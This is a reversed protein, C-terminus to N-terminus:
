GSEALESLAWACARRPQCNMQFLDFLSKVLKECRYATPKQGTLDMLSKAACLAIRRPVLKPPAGRGDSMASSLQILEEIPRRLAVDLRQLHDITSPILWGAMLAPFDKGAAEKEHIRNAADTIESWREMDDANVYGVVYPDLMALKKAADQLLKRLEELEDEVLYPDEFFRGQSAGAWYIERAHASLTWGSQEEDIGSHAVLLEIIEPRLDKM